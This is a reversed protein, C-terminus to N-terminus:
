ALDHLLVISQRGIHTRKCGTQFLEGLQFLLDRQQSRLDAASMLLKGAFFFKKGAQRVCHLLGPGPFMGRFLLQFVELHFMARGFEAMTEMQARGTRNTLLGHGGHRRGNRHSANLIRLDHNLFSIFYQCLCSGSGRFRRAFKVQDGPVDGVVRFLEVIQFSRNGGDTLLGPGHQAGFRPRLGKILQLLQRKGYLLGLFFHVLRILLYPGAPFSFGLGALISFRQFVFTLAAALAQFINRHLDPLSLSLSLFQLSFKGTRRRQRQQLLLQFLKVMSLRGPFIQFLPMVLRFACFGSGLGRYGVQLSPEFRFGAPRALGLFVEFFNGAFNFGSYFGQFCRRGQFQGIACLQCGHLPLKFNGAFAQAVRFQCPILLLHLKLSHHLFQFLVPLQKLAAGCQLFGGCDVPLQARQEM